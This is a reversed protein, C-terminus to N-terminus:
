CSRESSIVRLKQFCRQVTEESAPEVVMTQFNKYLVLGKKNKPHRKNEASKSSHFAALKAAVQAIDDTLFSTRVVVHSGTGEKVHFWWHEPASSFTVFDNGSASLGIYIPVDDYLIRRYPYRQTKASTEKQSLNVSTEEGTVWDKILVEGKTDLPLSLLVQGWRKLKGVREEIEQKDIPGRQEWQTVKRANKREINEYYSEIQRSVETSALDLANIHPLDRRSLHKELFHRAHEPVKEIIEKRLPHYLNTAGEPKPPFLYRKGLVFSRKGAGILRTSFIINDNELILLTAYNPILEVLLQRNIIKLRDSLQFVIIRDGEVNRIADISLSGIMQSLKREKKDTPLFTKGILPSSQLLSILLPGKTTDLQYFYAECLVANIRAGRFSSELDRALYSLYFSDIKM